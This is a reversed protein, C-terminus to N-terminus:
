RKGLLKFAAKIKEELTTVNQPLNKLATFAESRSFGVGTLADIIERTEGGDHGQLDLEKLGGLKSKLEIIVKQSNKTGLRPISTFFEVDASTIAKIVENVGRNIILLATKPGVGSVTLLLEFLELEKIDSFGFLNFADERIHSHIFLFQHGGEKIRNLLYIPIYVLYGVGGVVIIVADNKKYKVTGDLAGIM